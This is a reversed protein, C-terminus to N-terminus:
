CTLFIYGTSVTQPLKIVPQAKFPGVRDHKFDIHPCNHCYTISVRWEWHDHVWWCLINFILKKDKNTNIVYGYATNFIISLRSSGNRIKVDLFTYTYSLDTECSSFIYYYYYFYNVWYVYFLVNINWIFYQGSLYKSLCEVFMGWKVLIFFIDCCQMYMYYISCLKKVYNECMM